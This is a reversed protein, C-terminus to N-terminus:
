HVEVRQLHSNLHAVAKALQGPDGDQNLYKISFELQESETDQVTPSSHIAMVLSSLYRHKVADMIGM